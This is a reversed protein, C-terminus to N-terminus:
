EEFVEMAKEVSQDFGSRAFSTNIKGEENVYTAGTPSYYNTKVGDWRRRTVSFRATRVYEKAQELTVGHHSGHADVFALTSPDIAAPPVRITGRFGTAKIRNYIDFDAKTAEPVRGKYSYFSKLNSWADPDTYKMEQFADLDSPADAGLRESYRGFQEADKGQNYSKQREKEVYGPGHADVQQRYWDEYTMNEPMPQGSNYWDLADDPDYEVTTCRDNPHMPPYNTGPKANALEFVRGDLAACCECTRSDLTAVFRYREIGAEGYAKAQAANAVYASETRVIRRACFANVGFQEQFIM